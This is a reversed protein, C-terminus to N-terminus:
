GRRERAEWFVLTLGCLVNVAALISSFGHLREFSTRRPDTAPLSSIPGTVAAQLSQIRWGIPIAIAATIGLMVGVLALRPAFPRPRPGILAIVLLAAIMVVGCAYSVLHFRSLVAGFVAGALVRGEAPMRAQLVDFVVPAAIGALVLLGGLWVVLALLYVFRLGPVRDNYHVSFAV